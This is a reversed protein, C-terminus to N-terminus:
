LKFQNTIDRFGLKEAKYNLLLIYIEHRQNDIATQILKDINKKTFLNDVATLVEITEIDNQQIAYTVIKSFQKKIYALANEDKTKRYYALIFPYKIESELKISFDQNELISVAIEFKETFDEFKGFNGHIHYGKVFLNTLNTCRWFAYQEIETVSDPITVSTLSLCKAFTSWEIRTVSSPIIVSTLSTCEKFAGAGIREVSNPISVSTLSTCKRFADDGIKTVSEPITVSTLSECESFAYWGINTVGDPIVVDEGNGTYKKLVGKEIVFDSM